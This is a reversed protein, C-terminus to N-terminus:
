LDPPEAVLQTHNDIILRLTGSTDSATASTITHSILSELRKTQTATHDTEPSIMLQTDGTHVAFTSEIRIEYGGDTHITAGYDLIVRTITNGALGLDM